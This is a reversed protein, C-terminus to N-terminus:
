RQAQDDSYVARAKAADAGLGEALGKVQEVTERVAAVGSEMIGRSAQVVERLSGLQAVTKELDGALQQASLSQQIVQKQSIINTRDTMKSLTDRLATESEGLAADSVANVVTALRGAVGSTGQTAMIRAKSMKERNSERMTRLRVEETATEAFGTACTRHAEELAKAHEDVVTLRENRKLRDSLGENENTASDMARTLTTAVMADGVGDGVLAYVQNMRQNTDYLTDVQETMMGLHKEVEGIKTRSNEIFALASNVLRGQQAKWDDGSINLLKKLEDKHVALDGLASERQPQSDFSVLDAELKDLNEQVSQLAMEKVAIAKRASKKVNGYGFFQKEEGLQAISTNIEGVANQMAAFRGELDGRKIKRDTEAAEDGKIELYADFTKDATNLAFVADLVDTLPKMAEDFEGLAGFMDKYVGQMVSFTETDTLHLIEKQARQFEEELWASVEQWQALREKNEAKSSTATLYEAIENRKEEPSAEGVILKYIPNNVPAAVAAETKPTATPRLRTIGAPIEIDGVKRAPAAAAM